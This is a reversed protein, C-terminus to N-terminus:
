TGLVLRAGYVGVPPTIGHNRLGDQLSDLYYDEALSGIMYLVGALYSAERETLKISVENATVEAM